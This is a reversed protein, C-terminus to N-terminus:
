LTEARLAAKAAEDGDQVALLLEEATVGLKAAARGAAALIEDVVLERIEREDLIEAQRLLRAAEDLTLAGGHERILQRIKARVEQQRGPTM